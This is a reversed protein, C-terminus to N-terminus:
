DDDDLRYDIPVRVSSAIARGDRSAPKFTWRMVTALASAAFAREAEPPDANAVTAASPRGSADIDVRVDLHGQQRAAIAAPPYDPPFMTRFAVHESTAHTGSPPAAVVQGDPRSSVSPPISPPALATADHPRWDNPHLVATVELRVYGRSGRRAVEVSATAGEVVVLSPRAVIAGDRMVTAEVSLAGGSREVVFAARWRSGAADSEVVLPEGVAGILRADLPAADAFTMALHADVQEQTGSADAARSSQAAWAVYAGLMGTLSVLVLGSARRMRSPRSQKLMLIRETFPNRSPWWCGAPLRLEQRAQEALQTKLMADAYAARAGPFREIVVADCALEQDYRFRAAAWHIIPNFWALCRVAAVLANALADGRVLHVREHALILSREGALYRQRFDAPVVIRPRWVGVLAPGGTRSGSRVIHLGLRRVRGLSREYRRQQSWFMAAALLVGLLWLPSLWPRADFSAIVPTPSVDTVIRQLPLLVRSPAVVPAPLLAVLTICPVAAWAAYAVRAGFRRRLLVRLGLILLCAYTGILMLRTAAHWPDDIM